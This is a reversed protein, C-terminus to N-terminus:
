RGQGYTWRIFLCIKKLKKERLRLLYCRASPQAMDGALTLNIPGLFIELGIELGKWDMENM